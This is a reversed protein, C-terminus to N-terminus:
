DSSIVFFDCENHYWNEQPSDAHPPPPSCNPSPPIGHVIDCVNPYSWFFEEATLVSQFKYDNNACSEPHNAGGELRAILDYQQGDDSMYVYGYRNEYMPDQVPDTESPDSPVLPMFEQLLTQFQSWDCDPDDYETAVVGGVYNYTYANICTDESPYEQNEDYYLELAKSIQRLDAIRKVDRAKERASSLAAIAVTSLLGLIAIVVLLELLTFAKKNFILM